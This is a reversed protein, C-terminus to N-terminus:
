VDDKSSEDDRTHHEQMRSRSENIKSLGRSSVPPGLDKTVGTPRSQWLDEDSDESDQADEFTGTRKWQQGQELSSGRELVESRAPGDIQFRRMFESQQESDKLTQEQEPQFKRQETLLSERLTEQRKLGLVPLGGLGPPPSLESNTPHSELAITSIANTNSGPAFFPTEPDETDSLNSLSVWATDDIRRVKLNQHLFGAQFWRYMQVSSFPGQINRQLDLYVWKAEVPLGAPLHLQTAVTRKKMTPYVADDAPRSSTSSTKLIINWAEVDDAKIDECICGMAEAQIQLRHCHGLLSRKGAFVSPDRKSLWDGELDDLFQTGIESSRRLRQGLGHGFIKEKSKCVNAWLAISHWSRGISQLHSKMESIVSGYADVSYELRRGLRDCRRDLSRADNVLREMFEAYTEVIAGSQSSAGADYIPVEFSIKRVISSAEKGITTPGVSGIAVPYDATDPHTAEASPQSSVEAGTRVPMQTVSMTSVVQFHELTEIHREVKWLVDQMNRDQGARFIAKRGVVYRSSGKKILSKEFVAGLERLSKLCSKLTPDLTEYEEADLGSGVRRKVDGLSTVLRPLVNAADRLSQPMANPDSSSASVKNLIETNFAITDLVTDITGIISSLLGLGILNTFGLAPNNLPEEVQNEDEFKWKWKYENEDEDEDEVKMNDQDDDVADSEDGSSQAKLSSRVAAISQLIDMGDASKDITHEPAYVKELVGMCGEMLEEIKAVKMEYGRDEWAKTPTSRRSEIRSSLVSQVMTHLEECRSYNEDLLPILAKYIEENMDEGVYPGMKYLCGHFSLLKPYIIQLAKPLDEEREVGDKIQEITTSISSVLARLKTSLEIVARRTDSEQPSLTMPDTIVVAEEGQENRDAQDRYSLTTTQADTSSEGNHDFAGVTSTADSNALDLRQIVAKLSLNIVGMEEGYMKPTLMEEAHGSKTEAMKDLFTDFIDPLETLTRECHELDPRLGRCTDEDIAGTKISDITGALAGTLRPLLVAMESLFKPMDRPDYMLEIARMLFRERLRAMVVLNAIAGLVALAEPGQAISAKSMDIASDDFGEQNPIPAPEQTQPTESRKIGYDLGVEEALQELTYYVEKVIDQWGQSPYLAIARELQRAAVNERTVRHRFNIFPRKLEDQDKLDLTKRYRQMGRDFSRTSLIRTDLCLKLARFIASDQLKEDLLNNQPWDCINNWARLSDNVGSTIEMVTPVIPLLNSKTRLISVLDILMKSIKQYLANLKMTNDVYEKLVAETEASRSRRPASRENPMVREDINQQAIREREYQDYYQRLKDRLVQADAPGLFQPVLDSPIKDDKNRITPDAAVSFLLDMLRMWETPGDNVVAHLPTNGDSDQCDVKCGADLLSRAIEFQSHVVAYRFPRAGYDNECEVEAAAKILVQAVQAQEHRVADYLPTDGSGDRCDIDCGPTEILVRVTEVFGQRAAVHLPRRSETNQCNVDCGANLLLQVVETHGNIAAHHLPLDGLDDPVFKSSPDQSLREKVKQVDGRVCARALFDLQYKNSQAVNKAARLLQLSQEDGKRQAAMAPYGYPGPHLNIATGQDLLVQVIHPYGGIIAATLVHGWTQGVANVEAGEDLLQRVEAELGEYAAIHLPPNNVEEYSARSGLDSESHNEHGAAAGTSADQDEHDRPLAFLALQEMHSGVHHQFQSITVVLNQSPLDPNADQLKTSWEDCFPCAHPSIKNVSQRCTNALAVVQEKTFQQAHHGHLHSEFARSSQFAAHACVPCRREVRHAQMEHNFWTSREAFMKLDCGEFTCVYPKLDRFVHKKWARRTRITQITCCYQCEFPLGRRADEPLPPIKLDNSREDEGMSTAYSTQSQADDSNEDLRELTAVNLTSATTIALTSPARSQTHSKEAQNFLDRRTKLVAAGKERAADDGDVEASKKETGTKERHQRCYRLYQRRQTIAKGLRRELWDTRHVRPFKHGVHNIDFHADFPEQHAAAAKDYRDRTTASRILVSIKFLSTVTDSSSKLLEELESEPESQDSSLSAADSGEIKSILHEAEDEAAFGIRNPQDGSLIALIDQLTEILDELLERIQDAVKPAERLRYDLSSPLPLEQFAGINGAWIKFRGLQDIVTIQPNSDVKQLHCLEDFLAICIRVKPAVLESADSSMM